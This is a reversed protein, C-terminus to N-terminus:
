NLVAPMAPIDIHPLIIINLYKETSIAEYVDTIKNLISKLTKVKEFNSVSVFILVESPHDAFDPNSGYNEFDNKLIENLNEINFVSDNKIIKEDHLHILNRSKPDFVPINETCFVFIEIEKQISYNHFVLEPMKGHCALSDLTSMLDIFTEFSDLFVKEFTASQLNSYPYKKVSVDKNQKCSLFMMFIFMIRYAKM